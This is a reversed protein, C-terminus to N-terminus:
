KGAKQLHVPLLCSMGIVIQHLLRIQVRPLCIKYQLNNLLISHQLYYKDNNKSMAVDNWGKM